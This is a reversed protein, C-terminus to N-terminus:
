RSNTGVSSVCTGVGLERVLDPFAETFVQRQVTGGRVQLAGLLRTLTASESLRRSFDEPLLGLEASAEILDLEREYQVVLAAIPETVGLQSGVQRAANAYRRNDLTFLTVLKEDTPYLARITQLETHEFAQANREVHRRIQDSKPILGRVHCTMCSIGNAVARDPRRPDSVITLPAKDLRRGKANVLMFANLGNPLTFIIEGGACVFSNADLNPGLPHAFLNHQVVNDSFDYSRWYSGYPSDHREILRNNRSVGSGNFGARAVREQRIDEAIDIHLQEELKAETEPLQLVEHYLPPCSAAAVFWDARVYSLQGGALDYCERAAALDLLIGYPYASLVRTWVRDSWQYDRIDLALITGGPDVHRPRVIERRWSLSNLLKALANQYTRLEDDSLGANSLHTLTFYRAFRRDRHPLAMLDSHIWNVVHQYPIFAKRRVVNEDVTPAGADIWQKLTVMDASSPRSKEEEPPMEGQKIRRYIRSGEANGPVIKRRAALKNPDLIYNLGGEATGQDGHCRYCNARLIERANRALTSRTASVGTPLTGPATRTEPFLDPPLEDEDPAQRLSHNKALALFLCGAVAVGFSGALVWKLYAPLLPSRGELPARAGEPVAAM